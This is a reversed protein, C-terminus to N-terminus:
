GGTGGCTGADSGGQGDEVELKEGLHVARQDAWQEGAGPLGAGPYRCAKGQEEVGAPYFGLPDRRPPTWENGVYDMAFRRLQPDLKGYWGQLTDNDHTGTYVVCNEQYKHTM